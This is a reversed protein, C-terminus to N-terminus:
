RSNNTGSIDRYESPVSSDAGPVLHVVREQAADREVACILM